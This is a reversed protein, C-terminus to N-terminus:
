AAAALRRGRAASLALAAAAAAALVAAYAYAVAPGFHYLAGLTINAVFLGASRAATLAGMGGSTRAQPALAAVITPELTEVVGLAFGLLAMAPYLGVLGVHTAYAAGIGASGVAAALYGWLSLNRVARRAWRGAVLGTGASAALFIFYALIGLPGSGTAQAVTLIPFGASYSSFGYLAAAVLVGRYVATDGAAPPAPSAAGAAPGATRRPVLALFATSAVLPILTLLLVARYPWRLSILAFAYLAALAGGGVDLAHLFGFAKGQDRAPVELVLMARRPASRFNRAWWGLALLAVAEVPAPAVGVLGLLPIFANGTVAVRKRGYRDGLRGGVYGALAGPGYAIATAVGFLWVPAHLGWVLFLPFVALVAQYGLDAAFASLAILWVPGTRWGTGQGPAGDRDVRVM